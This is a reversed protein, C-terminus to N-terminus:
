LSRPPSLPLTSHLLFSVTLLFVDDKTPKKGTKKKRAALAEACHRTGCSAITLPPGPLSPMGENVFGSTTEIPSPSKNRIGDSITNPTTM